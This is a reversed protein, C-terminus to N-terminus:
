EEANPDESALEEKKLALENKLKAVVADFRKKLIVNTTNAADQEKQQITAELEAIEERLLELHHLAERAEEDGVNNGGGQEGDDDEDDDDDDAEDDDDSENGFLSEIEDGGDTAEDQNYGGLMNYGTDTESPAVSGERTSPAPTAPQEDEKIAPSEPSEETKETDDQFLKTKLVVKPIPKEKPKPQEEVVKVIRKRFRRQRAYRMPPTIGHPYPLEEKKYGKNEPKAMEAENLVRSRFGVVQHESLIEDLILLMQCIDSVKYINKKDLTKHAEIIAPLDVLVAFFLKDAIGVCAHRADKFKVWVQSIESRSNSEIAARLRELYPERRVQEERPFSEMEFRFITCEEILPDDERDPAESDYGQGPQRMPKVRIRPLGNRPPGNPKSPLPPKISIRPTPLTASTPTNAASGARSKKPQKVKLKPLPTSTAAKNSANAASSSSPTGPESSESLSAAAAASASPNLKLRIM